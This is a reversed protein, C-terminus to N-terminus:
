GCDGAPHDASQRRQQGPLIRLGQSPAGFDYSIDKAAALAKRKEAADPSLLLAALEEGSAPRSEVKGSHATKHEQGREQGLNVQRILQIPINLGSYQVRFIPSPETLSQASSGNSQMRGENETDKQSLIDM